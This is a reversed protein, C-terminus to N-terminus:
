ILAGRMDALGRHILSKATGTPINMAEAVESLSHGGYFRLVIAQRRRPAVDSLVDVLYHSEPQPRESLSRCNDRRVRRRRLEDHCSNVVITRLYCSPETLSDWRVWVRQFAEQVIEEATCRQDVMGSALRVMPEYRGAFFRDFPRDGGTAKNHMETSTMAASIEKLIQAMSDGIATSSEIAQPSLARVGYELVYPTCGM